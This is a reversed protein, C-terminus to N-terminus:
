AREKNNMISTVLSRQISVEATMFSSCNNECQLRENKGFVQLVQKISYQTLITENTTINTPPNPKVFNAINDIVDVYANAVNHLSRVDVILIIRGM